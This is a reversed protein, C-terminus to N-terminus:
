REGRERERERERERKREREEATRLNGRRAGSLFRGRTWASVERERGEGKGRPPIILRLL